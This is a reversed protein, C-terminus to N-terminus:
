QRQEASLGTIQLAAKSAAGQVTERHDLVEELAIRIIEWNFDQFENSDAIPQLSEYLTKAPQSESAAKRLWFSLVRTMQRHEFLEALSLRRPKRKM